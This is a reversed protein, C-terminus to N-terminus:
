MINNKETWNLLLLSSKERCNPCDTLIGITSSSYMCEKCIYTSIIVFFPPIVVEEINNYLLSM